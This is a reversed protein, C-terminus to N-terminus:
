AKHPIWSAMERYGKWAAYDTQLIVELMTGTPVDSPFAGILVHTGNEIKRKTEQYQESNLYEQPGVVEGTAVNVKFKCVNRTSM